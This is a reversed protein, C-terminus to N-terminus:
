RDNLRGVATELLLRLREMEPSDVGVPDSWLLITLSHNEDIAAVQWVDDGSSYAFAGDSGEVTIDLAEVGDEEMGEYLLTDASGGPGVTVTLAGMDCTRTDAGSLPAPEESATISPDIEAAEAVTVLDCPDPVGPEAVTTTTPTAVTSAPPSSTTTITSQEATAPTGPRLTSGTGDSGACALLVLTVASLM